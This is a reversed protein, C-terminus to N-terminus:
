RKGEAPSEPKSAPPVQPSALDAAWARARQIEGEKLPGEAGLVYFGTPSGRMPIGLSEMAAAIRMSAYGGVGMVWRLPVPHVTDLDLRTDFAAGAIDKPISRLGALFEAIQPTAHFGRTPSGVILLDVGSLNLDRANQVAMSTVNNASRLESAMAEAIEATNGYISDYVIIITNM